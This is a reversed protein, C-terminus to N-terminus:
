AKREEFLKDYVEFVDDIIKQDTILLLTDEREKDTYIQFVLAENEDLGELPKVPKLICYIQKKIPVLCIQKFEIGNDNDDYLTVPGNDNPDLISDIPNKRNNM